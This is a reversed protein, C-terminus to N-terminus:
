EGVVWALGHHRVLDEDERYKLVSGLSVDVLEPALRDAGLLALAAAWDITEAVGPPKQLDLARLRATAAAAQEAITTNAEPVRRRVIQVVAEASPYDIWHYLCRRKLADSLDRTRNSTLVVVPPYVAQRTGLEPITVAGEALLQLLFAEFEDDARDVEDILLVVPRPGPHEIAQLLPRALLHDPGFLDDEAISAGAAEAMRISLLQRPYNWEYLAEAADIGEYCQLRLLPTDLVQALAKAAETKGVGAEGELLIPQPLEAALFLATALGRDALYDVEDLRRRLADADPAIM